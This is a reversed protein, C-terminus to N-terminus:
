RRETLDVVAKWMLGVVSLRCGVDSAKTSTTSILHYTRYTSGEFIQQSGIWSVANDTWHLMDTVM